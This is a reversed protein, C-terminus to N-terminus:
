ISRPSRIEIKKDHISFTILRHILRHIPSKISSEPSVSSNFVSSAINSWFEPGPVRGEYARAVERLFMTFEPSMAKHAEYLGMMWLFEVLSREGYEGGLRFVLAQPFTPDQVNEHFVMTSFFEICLEKYVREQIAFLNNWGKCTFSYGTGM